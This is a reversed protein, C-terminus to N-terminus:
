QGGAREAGSLYGVLRLTLSKRHSDPPWVAYIGPRKLQWDPLLRLLRGAALDAEVLHEPLAGVGLGALVLTRLAFVNDVTVRGDVPVSAAGGDARALEVNGPRAAFRVWEHASLDAPAEVAPRSGLYAPAAVLARSFEGLKKAILSSDEMWGLRVALDFGERVLDHRTDSYAIALRVGPHNVAFAVLRRGFPKHPLMAPVTIRLSGVPQRSSGAVGALGEEAALLMRTASAFLAEGEATLSLSRTNRHLLATGLRSELTAVHQSVVSPSLSLARAAGRFSGSEVVRAFIALLRLENIV